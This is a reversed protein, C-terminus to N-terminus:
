KQKSQYEVRLILWQDGVVGFYIAGVVWVIFSVMIVLSLLSQEEFGLHPSTM